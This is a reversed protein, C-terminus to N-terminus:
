LVIIRAEEGEELYIIANENAPINIKDGNIKTFLNNAIIAKAKDNNNEPVIVILGYNNGSITDMKPNLEKFKLSNLNNTDFDKDSYSAYASKTNITSLYLTKNQNLDVNYLQINEFSYLGKEKKQLSDFTSITFKPKYYGNYNTNEKNKSFHIKITYTYKKEFKYINVEKTCEEETNDKCIEFPNEYKQEEDDDKIKIKYSLFAYKDEKLNKVKILRPGLKERCFIQENNNYVKDDLSITDIVKNPIYTIFYFYDGDSDYNYKSYLIFYYTGSKKLTVNFSNTNENIPYIQYNDGDFFVADFEIFSNFIFSFSLPSDGEQKYNFKFQNKDGFNFKVKEELNFEIFEGVFKTLEL